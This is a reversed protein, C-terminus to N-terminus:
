VRFKPFPQTTAVVVDAFVVKTQGVSVLLSTILCMIHFVVFMPVLLEHSDLKFHQLVGCAGGFECYWTKQVGRNSQSWFM